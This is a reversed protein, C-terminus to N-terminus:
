AAGTKRLALSHESFQGLGHICATYALLILLKWSPTYASWHSTVLMLSSGLLILVGVGLMWKINREQLFADLFRLVPSRDEAPASM